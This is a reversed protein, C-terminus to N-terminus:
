KLTAVLREVDAKLEELDNLQSLRAEFQEILPDKEILDKQL